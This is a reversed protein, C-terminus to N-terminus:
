EEHKTYGAATLISEATSESYTNNPLSDHHMESETYTFSDAVSGFGGLALAVINEKDIAAAIAKRLELDLFPAYGETPHINFGLYYVSLDDVVDIGIDADAEYQTKKLFPVSPAAVCDIEGAEFAPWLTGESEHLVYLIQEAAPLDDWYDDFRELLLHSGSVFEKVMWPGTGVYDGTEELPDKGEFKHQPVIAWWKFVDPFYGENQHYGEVYRM